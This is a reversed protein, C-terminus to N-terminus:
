SSSLLLIEDTKKRIMMMIMMKMVQQRSANLEVLTANVKQETEALQKRNQQLGENLRTVEEEAQALKLLGMRYREETIGLEHEKKGYLSRFTSLYSIFSKPTVFVPRRYQRTYEVCASSMIEHVSSM